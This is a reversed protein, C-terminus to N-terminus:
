YTLATAMLARGWAFCGAKTQGPFVSWWRMHGEAAKREKEPEDEIYQGTGQCSLPFKRSRICLLHMNPFERKEQEVTAFTPTPPPSNAANAVLNSRGGGNNGGM